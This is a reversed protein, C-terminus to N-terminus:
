VSRFLSRGKASGISTLGRHDIPEVGAHNRKLKAFAQADHGSCYRRISVRGNSYSIVAVARAVQSCSLVECPEDFDGKMKALNWIEIKPWHNVSM